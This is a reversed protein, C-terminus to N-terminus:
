SRKMQSCKSPEGTTLPNVTSDLVVETPNARRVWTCVRTVMVIIAFMMIAFHIRLIFSATSRQRPNFIAWFSLQEPPKVGAIPDDDYSPLLDKRRLSLYEECNMIHRFKRCELKRHHLTILIGFVAAPVVLTTAAITAVPKGFQADVTVLGAGLVAVIQLAKWTQDRAHHHDRWALEMVARVTDHEPGHPSLQPLEM